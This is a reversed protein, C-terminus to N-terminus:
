DSAIPLGPCLTKYEIAPSVWERWQKHSMNATLKNCLDIPSATAPWLRLTQDDSGSALRLGDPSFAVSRVAKSHGILPDGIATRLDTDWLRITRDNSASALRHGDPSFAVSEVWGDHGALTPGFAQGTDANWLRIKQDASGSALLRGDPQFAVSFVTNTHGTLPAGIPQGTNANWLRIPADRGASAFRHENASFAVTEVWDAHGTLPTGIPQGTNANWLRITHDASGSALLLGDPRFAVSFVKDTHGTLPAGIPQGTDANWLRVTRDFSASALRHGDPSFAVSSVVDTHGTLPPGLPQSTDADWLRVTRDDSASALRHGDPSFAVSRVNGQHGTLPQMDANWIRLTNDSSGSAIHRGDPSFAVSWVTNRHGTLSEGIPQGSDADWIRVTDDASGSVLRHGDPSFSVSQVNGDHGNLPLGIPQGTDADWIRITADASGSVLRHGDPSFSVSEVQNHHGNLPPGIPQGTDADWLRVTSDYSASALRHGDPSFAVRTVTDTHGTLPLGMPQGTDANWLRITHDRGASALRHGDPSFAVTEVWQTHAVLPQGIAQGTDADWLRVTRDYSASALRHGDPSFAVSTVYETHGTLPHGILQFTDADWVRVARDRSATALRHGDPSYAVSAIEDPIPIIKQTTEKEVVASYLAGYDPTATISRGALLQQFAQADSGPHTGALIGLAESTLRLATAERFRATAQHQTHIAVISVVVAVIAALATATLVARLVRSRKRLAAAHAEASRRRDEANRLEAERHEEEAALKENEAQRCAAMFDRCGALRSSFGVTNGLTEADTLRTGTLLWAPDGGRTRWATASREIDDAAILSRRELRLWGALDDWQRLLSELAVEVVVEGDREDKVLLRQEVLADILPRSGSPLDAHRAVRRVPQDNGPNISALWPIFAARLLSLQESRQDPDASLVENIAHKIVHSIGGIAEYQALTIEGTSSYDAYLRALTLALLPLTDAGQAVDDLLRNVLEPAIALHHGSQSARAAPGTIVQAFHGPPMPKLENFLEAGIRDLAPHNQMADYRDTRITAAVILGVAGVNLTEMLKAILVLFQEAEPGADASFLEEAQDLPLVVTPTMDDHGAAALRTAAAERVESLLEAVRGPDTLCASKIEGLAVGSLHLGQRASYIAAAFGQTGTLASREPRVAGLTLFHSDDRQLRPILGARLFSSKGSGSPGLVVFLWKLRSILMGRLEDTGRVIVADRGFFVGADIDEFPEWGRYPSRDVAGRPPWAFHEPGVGTGEIAKKLQDLAAINFRVPPGGSVAIDTQAGGAFLDCRQWKSTIDTDGVDELRAVLIQKGLNEALLYELRCYDSSVWDRSVLCVVAECRDSAQRLAEQWRQGPRLGTEASIDIFIETALEPRVDSLWAVLGAAQRNDSSAHSLFIRSV